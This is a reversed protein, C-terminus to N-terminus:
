LGAPPAYLGAARARVGALAVLLDLTPTAVGAMRALALPAEYITAVEMPRRRELDQLISPKHRMTRGHSIQAEVDIRPHWGYAAAIAAAEAVIRRVADQCAQPQYADIPASQTLVAFPGTALNMALKHWVWERIAPSEDVRMGETRLAGALAALRPSMGGDPEGLVLRSKPNEVEVHGPAVVECASYIVAGLSRAAGIQAEIRGGPDLMALSHGGLVGGHAHFYWWPIGNMVCTVTTQPGLLPAMLAAIEPLAPAKATVLVADQVGLVAPDDTAVPRARLTESPTTVLLGRERIAALNAGRAVVSVDHGNQALRAALHGGIAGAGFVCVRM